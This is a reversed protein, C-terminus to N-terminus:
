RRPAAGRAEPEKEPPAIATPPPLQALAAPPAGTQWAAMALLSAAGLTLQRTLTHTM